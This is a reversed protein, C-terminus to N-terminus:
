SGTERISSGKHGWADCPRVEFRIAASEGVGLRNRDYVVTVPAVDHREALAIGRSYVRRQDVIREVDEERAYVTVEYDLARVGANAVRVTPFTITIKAGDDHRVIRADAPFEPVVAAQARTAYAYPKGRRIPWPFEWDEGLDEDFSFEHKKVVIREDYVSVLQGVKPTESDFRTAEAFASEASTNARGGIVGAFPLAPCASADISTFEGQWIAREDNPTVHTHGSIAICNPYNRLYKTSRGCDHGGWGQPSAYLFPSFVTDSPHHHQIYFFPKEGKLEGGRSAFFEDLRRHEYRLSRYFPTDPMEGTWREACIDSALHAFWQFLVFRYGKIEKVKVTEYPEHFCEEWVRERNGIFAEKASEADLPFHVKPFEPRHYFYGDVDHNGTVFLKEVHGGDSRRDGPFVEDWIEGVARMESVLGRFGLDGSVVVGDVRRADFWKLAKRFHVGEPKSQIHIDSLVGIRLRCSDGEAALSKLWPATVAAIGLKTFDRRTM